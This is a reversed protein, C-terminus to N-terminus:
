GREAAPTGTPEHEGVLPEVTLVLGDLETVRVPAGPAINEGTSVAQWEESAVRVLGGRSTVGAGIAVGSTGVIAERGQASPMKRLALAKAVVFAFFLAVVVATGVLVGPSVSVGGSRDYLFWGGLLLAVVGLAGWIGLGPAKLELVFCVVSVILLAIGIWRVPLVGFSWLALLLLITGITGSFIHGPVLLELILLILGLWFFLFALSPDLLGHLFGVFGGIEENVVTAGSTRLTVEEGSGLRVTQGDLSELLSEVNPEVWEVVGLELAEDATISRGETVFEEAVEANRDYTQALSRANAAADNAIKNSLDGGDLGIPTAAGVHTGPAMAAIPCSLLIIAGASAARAGNPAVYGIVPVGANVIARSIEGMSSSLGGPTDITILVAEAGDAEARAINDVLYDAMFQDVVGTLELGVVTPSDSQAQASTATGALGLALLTLSVLLRITRGRTM